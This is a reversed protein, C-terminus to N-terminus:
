YVGVVKVVTIKVEEETKTQSKISDDSLKSTV